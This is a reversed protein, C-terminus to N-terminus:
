RNRLAADLGVARRLAAQKSSLGHMIAGSQAVEFM